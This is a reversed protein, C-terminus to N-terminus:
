NMNCLACKKKKGDEHIKEEINKKVPMGITCLAYICKSFLEPIINVASCICIQTLDVQTVSPM